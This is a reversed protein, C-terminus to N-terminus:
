RVPNEPGRGLYEAAFAQVAKADYSDLTLRHTWATLVYPHEPNEKPNPAVVISSWSGQHNHAWARLSAEAEPTLASPDYYIIVAGHELTHVLSGLAPTEEYYGASVTSPYHTGSLPPVREYDINTGQDVHGNGQSPFSEVQSTWQDAGRNPLPESELGTPEAGEVGSDGMFFAFWIIVVVVALGVGGVLLGTTPIGGDDGRAAEVRRREISGLEGEHETGLHDFYAEESDFTDECYKCEVM